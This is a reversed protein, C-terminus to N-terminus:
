RPPGLGAKEIIVALEDVAVRLRQRITAASSKTYRVSPVALNISGVLEGQVVVGAAMGIIGVTFEERAYAFGEERALRIQEWVQRGSTLTHPTLREFQVQALYAKIDRDSMHSLAIKGSSIAYLPAKEGVRMTYALAQGGNQTAIATVHDGDRVYFGATENTERSLRQLTSLVLTQLPPAPRGRALEAIRDGLRYRATAEDQQLYGRAVLNSLLQFLSSRPIGLMTMLVSFSAHGQAVAELIDLVRDASKVTTGAPQKM